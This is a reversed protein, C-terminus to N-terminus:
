GQMGWVAGCHGVAAFVAMSLCTNYNGRTKCLQKDGVSVTATLQAAVDGTLRVEYRMRGGTPSDVTMSFAKDSYRSIEMFQDIPIVHGGSTVVAPPGSFKVLDGFPRASSVVQRGSSDKM